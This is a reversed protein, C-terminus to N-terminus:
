AVGGPAPLEAAQRRPQGARRALLLPAAACLLAGAYAIAALVLVWTFGRALALTVSGVSALVSTAGNLAWAWPILAGDGRLGALRVGLPFPMGLLLGLPALLGIAAGVRAPEPTGLLLRLVAPLAAAYVLIALVVAGVIILQQRGLTAAPLRSTLGAGCGSFVLLSFLIVALSYVPQGLFLIFRQMLVTEILMFGLGLCAAYGLFALGRGTLMGAGTRPRRLLTAALPAGITALCLLAVIGLLLVLTRVAQLNPPMAQGAVREGAAFDRPRLLNFFFPNDDSPPQINLYYDRIFDQRAQGTRAMLAGFDGPADPQGPAYLLKFGLDSTHRRLSDIEAPTFPSRKAILTALGMPDNPKEVGVMAVHRDPDAVGQDAWAALALVLLRLSEAPQDRYYWRSMTLLGDDALHHYYDAFAQRTYLFNESLVFAGASSSAWTDILTAQILAYREGAPAHALFSRADAVVTRVGPLSYPRGSYDGFRRDVTDVILPNIEVATIEPRGFARATLIDRGGGPGIILVPGADPPQLRYAMASLDFKLYGLPGLNRGDFRAIPTGAEGDILLLRAGPDRGRYATSLAWTFPLGPGAAGDGSVTIRSFSNWGEFALGRQASGKAYKISLLGLSPNLPLLAAVAVAVAAALWRVLRPWGAAVALAATALMALAAVVLVAGPGGAASLAPIALLCGAGAGLLDAFYVRGIQAPYTSLLLAMALGGFFFPLALDLYLWTLRGLDAGTVSASFPMSLHIAVSAVASVAFLGAAAAARAEGRGPVAPFLRPLLYVAVGGAAAGLLALSISLFAFHYWMTVSFIRVLVVQFMLIAMALLATGLLMALSPAAGAPRDGGEERRRGSSAM